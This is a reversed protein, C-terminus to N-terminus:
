DGKIDLNDLVWELPREPIYHLDCRFYSRLYVGFVNQSEVIGTVVHYNAPKGEKGYNKEGSFRASRPVKLQNRVYQRCKTRSAVPRYQLPTPSPNATPNLTATPVATPFKSFDTRNFLDIAVSCVFLAILGMVFLILKEDRSMKLRRGWPM